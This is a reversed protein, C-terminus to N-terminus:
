KYIEWQECFYDYDKEFSVWDDLGESWRYRGFPQYRGLFSDLHNKECIAEIFEKGLLTKVEVYYADDFFHYWYEFSATGGNNDKIIVDHETLNTWKMSFNHEEAAERTDFRKGDLTEYVTVKKIM